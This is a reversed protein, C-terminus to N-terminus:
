EENISFEIWEIGTVKTKTTIGSFMWNNEQNTYPGSVGWEYALSHATVLTQFVAESVNSNNLPTTFTVDFLSSDKWYRECKCLTVQTSCVDEFKKILKQAKESTKTKFFAHWVIENFM